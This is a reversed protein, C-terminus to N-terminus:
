VLLYKELREKGSYDRQSADGTEGPYVRKCYRINDFGDKELYYAAFERIPYSPSLLLAELGNRSGQQKMRYEYADLRVRWYIKEMSFDAERRVRQGRRVYEVLPMAQIIETCSQIRMLQEPLLKMATLRIAPVWENMRMLIYPLVGRENALHKLCQERFYGNLHASGCILLARCGVPSAPEAHERQNGASIAWDPKRM